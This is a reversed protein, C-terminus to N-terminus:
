PTAERATSAAEPRLLEHNLECIDEIALLSGCLLEGTVAPPRVCCNLPDGLNAAPEVVILLQLLGRVDLAPGNSRATKRQCASESSLGDLKAGPLLSTSTAPRTRQTNGRLMVRRKMIGSQVTTSLACVITRCNHTINRKQRNQDM